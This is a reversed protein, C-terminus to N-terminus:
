LQGKSETTVTVTPSSGEELQHVGDSLAGAVCYLLPCVIVTIILFLVLTCYIFLPTQVHTLTYTRM